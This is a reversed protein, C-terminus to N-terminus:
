AFIEATVPCHDSHTRWEAYSGVTVSMRAQWDQPAFIYDFHFPRDPDKLLHFTPTTESGHEQNNLAHYGSVLGRTALESVMNSHNWGSRGKNLVANSNFDGMMVIPGSEFWDRHEHLARGIQGVYSARKDGKIQCAWVAILTFNQPGTVAFPVIWEIGSPTEDLRRLSWNKKYFVGMGIKPNGDTWVAEYGDYAPSETSKKSCEQIVAIDPNTPFILAKKKDFGRACNWTILKM